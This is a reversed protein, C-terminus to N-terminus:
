FHYNRKNREGRWRHRGRGRVRRRVGERLIRYDRGVWLSGAARLSNPVHIRLIIHHFKVLHQM